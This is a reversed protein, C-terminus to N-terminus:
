ARALARGQAQAFAATAADLNAQAQATLGESLDWAYGRIQLLHVEPVRDFCQQCIAMVGPTTLAHSTFSLDYRAKVPDLRFGELGAEKSADVILVREMRSFLDADELFMQYHRLTEARPCLGERELWDIFAWGLGDDMRGVNGIGHILCAENDFGALLELM